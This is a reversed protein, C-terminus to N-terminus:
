SARDERPRWDDPGAVVDSRDGASADPDLDAEVALTPFLVRQLGGGLLWGILGGV